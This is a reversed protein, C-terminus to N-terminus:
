NNKNNKYVEKLAERYSLEPHEAQYIKAKNHYEQQHLGRKDIVDNKLIEILNDNIENADQIQNTTKKEQKSKWQKFKNMYCIFESLDEYNDFSLNLTFSM